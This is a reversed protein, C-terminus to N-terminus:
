MLKKKHFYQKLYTVQLYTVVLLVAVSLYGFWRVRSNISDATVRMRAERKEM